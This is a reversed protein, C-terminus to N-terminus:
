RFARGEPRLSPLIESEASGSRRLSVEHLRSAVAASAARRRWICVHCASAPSAYLERGACSAQSPARIRERLTEPIVPCHCAWASNGSTSIVPTAYRVM